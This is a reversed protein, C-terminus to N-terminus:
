VTLGKNVIRVLYVPPVPYCPLELHDDACSASSWGLPSQRGDTEQEPPLEYQRNVLCPPGRHTSQDVMLGKEPESAPAFPTVLLTVSATIFMLRASLLIEVSRSPSEGTRHRSVQWAHGSRTSETLDRMRPRKAFYSGICLAVPASEPVQASNLASIQASRAAWPEESM